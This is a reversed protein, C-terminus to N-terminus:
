YFEYNNIRNIMYFHIKTQKNTKEKESKKGGPFIFKQKGGPSM